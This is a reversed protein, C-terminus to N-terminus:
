LRTSLKNVAGQIISRDRGVYKDALWNAQSNLYNYLQAIDIENSSLASTVAGRLNALQQTCLSSYSGSGCNAELYTKTSTLDELIVRLDEALIEDEIDFQMFELTAVTNDIAALLNTHGTSPVALSAMRELHLNFSVLHSAVASFYRPEPYKVMQQVELKCGPKMAQFGTAGDLSSFSVVSDQNGHTLEISNPEYTRSGAIRNSVSSGDGNSLTYRVSLPRMSECEFTYNLLTKYLGNEIISGNAYSNSKQAFISKGSFNCPPLFREGTSTTRSQCQQEANFVEVPFAHAAATGTLSLTALLLAKM